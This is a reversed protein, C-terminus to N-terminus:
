CHRELEKLVSQEGKRTGLIRVVDKGAIRAVQQYGVPVLLDDPIGEGVLSRIFSLSFRCAIWTSRRVPRV